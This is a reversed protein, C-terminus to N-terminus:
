AIKLKENKLLLSIDNAISTADEASGYLGRRVLGACYLGNNGKWHKPFKQKALGDDGILYDDDKLWRKIASRYGTALIIADFSRLKGNKFIVNKGDIMSIEPFVEIERSKIKSFTGADVVPYTPSNIKLYIPGKRPRHLGYKSTNGFCLYCLFLVISDAWKIPLVKMLALAIIWIEKTVLHLQSRVVIACRAGNEALDCAVEMGSNGSGVVLVDLGEYAKGTRYQQCHVTEGKFQDLGIIGVPLVPEDNEGTAVVLFRAEYEEVEGSELNAASVRWRAAAWDFKASDVRRSLKLHKALGFTAVYDDLYRIFDACPLFTPSSPPYPLLPLQCYQKPLHLHLRDYTRYRWLPATSDDRDLILVPIHKTTLCAAVALGSPGAGIILVTTSFTTAPSQEM